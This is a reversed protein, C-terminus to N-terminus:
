KVVKELCELLKRNKERDKIAVRIYRDDLYKFNSCDRILIGYRIMRERLEDSKLSLLKILIFNVETPYVELNDIKKLENYIYKREEEIWENTKEIYEKDELIVKGAIEAIGNVSWPERNNEMKELISKEFSIGYGLRVGPLAFYKTLARLIFINKSKLNVISRERWNKIFEIFSEDIFLNKELEEIKKIFNRFNKLEIFNGTPNNPNCIVFIDYDKIKDELEKFNLEFKDGLPFFDIKKGAIRAGREYEAFTPSIILVRDGKVERMYLFLIETAGNGVIINELSLNNYKAISERLEYYDIDPYKELNEINEVLEKKFSEPIGLPNINSSFDLVEKGSERKIKYINGGHIEM